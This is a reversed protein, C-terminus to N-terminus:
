ESVQYELELVWNSTAAASFDTATDVNLVVKDGVSTIGSTAGTPFTGNVNENAGRKSLRALLVKDLDEGVRVCLNIIGDSDDAATFTIAALEADTDMAGAAVTIGSIGETNIFLLGADDRVITKSAPTAHGTISFPLVLRQVKLQRGRVFENKAEYSM